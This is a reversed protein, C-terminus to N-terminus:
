GDQQGPTVTLRFGVGRVAEIAVEAAQLRTLKARL